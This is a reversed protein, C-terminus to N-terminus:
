TFLLKLNLKILTGAPPALFSRIISQVAQKGVNARGVFIIYKNM